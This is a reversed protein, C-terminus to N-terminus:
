EVEFRAVRPNKPFGAPCKRHNRVLVTSHKRIFRATDDDIVTLKRFEKRSVIIRGDEITEEILGWISPAVTPLYQFRAVFWPRATEPTRKRRRVTRMYRRKM